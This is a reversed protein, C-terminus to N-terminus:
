PVALCNNILDTLSKTPYWGSPLHFAEKILGMM